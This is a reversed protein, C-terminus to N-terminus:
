SKTESNETPIEQAGSHPGLNLIQGYYQKQACVELIIRAARSPTTGLECAIQHLVGFASASLFVRFNYGDRGVTPKPLGRTRRFDHLAAISRGTISAITPVSHGEAFLRTIFESEGTSYRAGGGSRRQGVFGGRGFRGKEDRAM